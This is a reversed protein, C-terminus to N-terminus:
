AGLGAPKNKVTDDFHVTIHSTDRKSLDLTVTSKGDFSVGTYNADTKLHNYITNYQEKTFKTFTWSAGETPLGILDEAAGVNEIQGAYQKPWEKGNDLWAKLSVQTSESLKKMASTIIHDKDLEYQDVDVGIWKKNKSQAAAMISAYIGGGCAFVADVDETGYWSDMKTRLSDSPDFTGAYTYQVDVHVNDETAADIIGALYGFGYKQVAPIEIGGAFGLKTYGEKVAAYGALYGPEHEKYVTSSVNEKMVVNGDADNPQGDIFLIDVNPFENMITYAAPSHLYGPLVLMDAGNQIARRMADARGADNYDTPDFYNCKLNNDESFKKVGEYTFQNFSNDNVKGSDTILAIDIEGATDGNCSSLGIVSVMALLSLGVCSFKAKM